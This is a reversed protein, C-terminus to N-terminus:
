SEVIISVEAGHNISCAGQLITPSSFEQRITEGAQVFFPGVNHHAIDDNRIVLVNQGGLKLRIEEPIIDESDGMRMMAETGQPIVIWLEDDSRARLLANLASASRYTTRSSRNRMPIPYVFVEYQEQLPEPQDPLTATVDFRWSGMRSITMDLRYEGNQSSNTQGSLPMGTHEMQGTVEVSANEVPTGDSNVLSVLLTAPGVALPFPDSSLRIEVSGPPQNQRLLVVGGAVAIITMVVILTILRLKRSM